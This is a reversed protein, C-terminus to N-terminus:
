HEHEEQKINTKFSEDIFADLNISDKIIQGELALKMIQRMASIEPNLFHYKIVDLDWRLSQKIAEANHSPIHKRIMSIIQEMEKGGEMRAHDIDIGAQHIYNIVEQIAKRKSKIAKDSAIIICEVHGKPWHLVDKSYWAVKGYDQTEVVDAWPLSQEFAAPKGYNNQKKIFVPSKAPPVTIAVVDDGPKAEGIALKLGNDNLYKYLIVTHTALLSPVGVQIPENNKKNYERIANAVKDDAKRDLRNYPLKVSQNFLDNIALANGDRHILSIWRFDPKKAFMDLAMPSIIFALDVEGSRFYARLLRWSKMKEIKFDAHEMQEHYKEYAVIGPYHDALPIYIAKISDKAFCQQSFFLQSFFLLSLFFLSCTFFVNSLKM